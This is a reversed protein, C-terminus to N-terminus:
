RLKEEWADVAGEIRKWLSVPSEGPELCLRVFGHHCDGELRPLQIVQYHTVSHKPMGKLSERAEALSEAIDSRPIRDLDLTFLHNSPPRMIENFFPVIRRALNDLDIGPGNAPPQYLITLGVQTVLPILHAFRREFSEIAERVLRRFKKSEGKRLDSHHLDLTLPPSIMMDRSMAHIDALEASMSMCHPSLLQVFSRTSASFARLLHKQVDILRMQHWAQYAQEGFQTVWSKREREIDRLREIADADLWKDREEERCVEEWADEADTWYRSGRGTLDGDELRRLLATDEVLNAFPAMKLWIGPAPGGDRLLTGEDANGDPESPRPLVHYKVALYRVQRDDNLVLRKRTTCLSEKPSGLLDLYNKPLNHITPPSNATPSFDFEAAVDSRFYRRKFTTLTELVARQFAEAETESMSNKSRPELAMPAFLLRRRKRKARKALEGDLTSLYNQNGSM